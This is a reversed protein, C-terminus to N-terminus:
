KIDNEPLYRRYPSVTADLIFSAFLLVTSVIWDLIYGKHWWGQEKTPKCFMTSRGSISKGEEGEEEEKFVRFFQQQNTSHFKKNEDYGSLLSLDNEENM